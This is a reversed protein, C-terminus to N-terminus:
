TVKVFKTCAIAQTGESGVVTVTVLVWSDAPPFSKFNAILTSADWTLRFKRENALSPSVNTIVGTNGLNYHFQNQIAAGEAKVAESLSVSIAYPSLNDDQFPNADLDLSSDSNAAITVVMSGSSSITASDIDFNTSGGQATMMSPKISFLPPITAVAFPSTTLDVAISGLTAHMDFINIKSNANLAAMACSKFANAGTATGTSRGRMARFGSRAFETWANRMQVTLANWMGSVAIWISRTNRQAQSSPNGPKAYVRMVQGGKNRSFVSGGVKGRLEGYPNGLIRAM